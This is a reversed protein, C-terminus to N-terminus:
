RGKRQGVQFAKDAKEAAAEARTAAAQADAAAQQATQAAANMDALTKQANQLDASQSNMQSDLKKNMEALQSEVATLRTNLPDTEKKVSANTACGSALLALVVVGLMRTMM